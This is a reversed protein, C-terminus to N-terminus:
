GDKGRTAKKSEAEAQAAAQQRQGAELAEALFNPRPRGFEEAVTQLRSRQGHAVGPIRGPSNKGGTDERAWGM